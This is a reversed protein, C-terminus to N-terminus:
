QLLLPNVQYPEMKLTLSLILYITNFIHIMKIIYATKKIVELYAALYNEGFVNIADFYCQGRCSSVKVHITFFWTMM